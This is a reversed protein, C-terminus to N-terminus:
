NETKLSKSNEFRNNKVRFLDGLTKIKKRTTFSTGTKGIEGEFINKYEKNRFLSISRSTESDLLYELSIDDFLLKNGYVPDNTTYRLGITMNLRDNILNAHAQGIYDIRRNLGFLGDYTLVDFTFPVEGLFRGIMSKLERQLFSSLAANMDLTNTGTGGSALYVGTVLLSVAQKSREEKGMSALQNQVNVDNPAELIFEMEMKDFYNNIRIGANFDVIRSQGDFDVSSRIKSYATINLYPNMPDGSWDVYSGNRIIFDTLPIVPISYRIHGDSLSYRGNLLMDGQMTYQLTLDGGGKMEVCNKKAADMDVGLKVVPDIHITIFVDNGVIATIGSSRRAFGAPRRNRRPLTDAFYTFKVINNNFGGQSELTEEPMVYTMGTKGLINLKGRTHLSQLTGTVTTNLDVFLKGYALCGPRDKADVLPINFGSINVNVAPNNLNQANINGKITFPNGKVSIKFNDIDLINNNMTIEKDEFLFRTSSSNVFVSMSDPKLVGSVDPKEGTGGVHFNGHIFGNLEVTNEPMFPELIKLPLRDINFIGDLRDENQGATYLLSLATIENMDHFAHVDIQHKNNEIPIYTASLLMDGIKGSKYYMRDVNGDAMIMYSKETPEYRLTANLIGKFLPFDTFGYVSKEMNIQSLEVMLEKMETADKAESHIWFSANDEGKLYIDASMDKVNKFLFYNDRNLTFPIFALVIKEPYLYFGFGEPMKKLHIGLDLGKKNYRNIFSIFLDAEKNYLFGSASAKFPTQNRFRNKLVDAQYRLGLLDQWINLRVTDIKFTDKVLALLIGDVNLGAEPSIAADISFTEYFIDSEQLISYLLNDTGAGIHLTMDPFDSRLAQMDILSDRKLQDIADESLKMFKNVLTVPDANGTLSINLDGANFDARVTDDESRLVLTAMDPHIQQEKLTLNWNDLTIDLSHERKLDTEFDSTIEFSTSLISDSFNLEKLDLTDIRATLKGKVENKRVIGDFLINGAALPFNSTFEAKLANDRLMGNLSLDTLYYDAYQMDTINAQVETWTRKNFIDFGKGAMNLAGSLLMLSDEPMFRVPRLSDITVSLDYNESFINYKGSLSISGNGTSESLNVSASYLGRNMKMKGNLIMSDPIHFRTRTNSPLISTLFSLDQTRINLDMNGTRISDKLVNNMVGKLNISVHKQMNVTFNHIHLSEFNGNLNAHIMLDEDPYLKRFDILSDPSFLMIDQKGIIGKLTVSMFDHAKIDNISNWPIMAQLELESNVTTAQLSPISIGFSDSVIHGKLNELYFGSFDEKVSLEELTARFDHLSGYNFSGLSLKLDTLRIHNADFGAKAEATDTSYNLKAMETSFVSARYAEKGLDICGDRLEADKIETVIFISDDPMACSFNVNGLQIRGLEVLWNVTSPTTDKATTDCYFFEIDADQLKLEDILAMQKKLLISDANLRVEGIKGRVTIEDMWDATNLKLNELVIGKVSINGHFLPRLRVKVTLRDFLLLTDKDASLAYVNRASFNLPFALRVKGLGVEVGFKESFYGAGARVAANQISPVYVLLSVVLLLVAPIM